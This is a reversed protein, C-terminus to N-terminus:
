RVVDGFTLSVARIGATEALSARLVQEEADGATETVLILLDRNEARVVECGPIAMLQRAVQDAAGPVPLVLYSLIPM